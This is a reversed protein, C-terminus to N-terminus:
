RVETKKFKTCFGTGVYDPTRVYIMSGVSIRYGSDIIYMGDDDMTATTKVTIDVNSHEPYNSYVLEGNELDVGTYQAPTSSVAIVEGLRYKKASDVITSGVKINDVFEDRITRLEIVYEIEFTNSAKRSRSKSWLLVGSAAVAAILFIIIADIANFKHKQKSATM